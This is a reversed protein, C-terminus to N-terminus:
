VTIKKGLHDIKGMFGCKELRGLEGMVPILCYM